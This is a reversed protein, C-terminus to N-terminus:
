LPEFCEHHWLVIKQPAQPGDLGNLTLMFVIEFSTLQQNLPHKENWQKCLYWSYHKLYLANNEDFFLTMMYARWRDSKFTSSVLSPKNWSLPQGDRFLDVETGDALKAPIIYWGNEKMPFPAFMNWYQDIRLLPGIANAEALLPTAIGLTRVNWLFIYAIFFLALANSFRSAKWNVKPIYQPTQILDWFWKPIFVIWAVTCVYSFHGLDMTLNLGVLHFFIFALATAFRLPGTFLPSFAFFPGLAELYFTAFTFIKLLTPYQLLYLGFPTSFQEVGLAFWVATGDRRWSDDVKLLASFWYIFCVQLLLALTAASAIQNEYPLEKRNKADLSWCAGLPLFMSWFLLLRLVIDGGQLILPNRSQLSILLIWSLVTALRTHYGVLLAMACLASLCFLIVQFPATGNILHLSLNSVDIVHAILIDRPLVGWDTYHATVDQLRILLDGLLVLAIGIRFLALSRTDIECLERFINHWSPAAKQM